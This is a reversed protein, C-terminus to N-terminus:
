NILHTAAVIFTVAALTSASSKASQQVSSGSAGTIQNDKAALDQLQKKTTADDFQPPDPSDLATANFPFKDAKHDDPPSIGPGNWKPRLRELMRCYNWQFQLFIGPCQTIDFGQANVIALQLM